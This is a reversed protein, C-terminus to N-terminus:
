NSLPAASVAFTFSDDNVIYSYTVYKGNSSTIGNETKNNLNLNSNITHIENKDAGNEFLFELTSNLYYFQLLSNDDLNTKYCSVFIGTINGGDENEYFFLDLNQSLKYIVALTNDDLHRKEADKESIKGFGGKEMIPDAASVFNDITIGLDNSKHPESDSLGSTTSSYSSNNTDDSSTAIQSSSNSSSTGTTQASSASTQSMVASSNSSVSTGCGSLMLILGLSLVFKKM